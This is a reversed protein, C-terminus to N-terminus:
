ISVSPDKSAKMEAIYVDIFDRLDNPDFTKKHQEIYPKILDDMSDMCNKFNEFGNLNKLIPLSAIKPNPLLTPLLGLPSSSTLVNEVKAM